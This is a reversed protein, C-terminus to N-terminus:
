LEWHQEDERVLQQMGSFRLFSLAGWPALILTNRALVFEIHWYHTFSCQHMPVITNEAGLVVKLYM